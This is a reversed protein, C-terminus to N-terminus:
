TCYTMVDFKSSKSAISPVPQWFARSPRGPRWELCPVHHLYRDVTGPRWVHPDPVVLHMTERTFTVRTHSAMCLPLFTPWCPTPAALPRWTGPRRFCSSQVKRLLITLHRNSSGRAALCPPSSVPHRIGERRHSRQELGEPVGFHSTSLKDVLSLFPTRHLAALLKPDIWRAAM